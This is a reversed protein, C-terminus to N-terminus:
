FFVSVDVATFLPAATVDCLFFHVINNSQQATNVLNNNCSFDAYQKPRKNFLCYM